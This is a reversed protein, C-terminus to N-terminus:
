NKAIISRIWHLSYVKITGLISSLLDDDDPMSEPTTRRRVIASSNVSNLSQMTLQSEAFSRKKGAVTADTDNGGETQALQGPTAGISLSNHTDMEPVSLLKEPAPFESCVSTNIIELHSDVANVNEAQGNLKGCSVM